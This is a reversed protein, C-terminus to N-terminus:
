ESPNLKRHASIEALVQERNGPMEDPAFRIFVGRYNDLKSPIALPSLRVGESYVLVRKVKSWELEFDNAGYRCTVSIPTIAYKQKFLFEGCSSAIMLLAAVCYIPNHFLMWAIAGAFLAAGLIIPIRHPQLSALHINWELTNSNSIPDSSVTSAFPYNTM